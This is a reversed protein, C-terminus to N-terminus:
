KMHESIPYIVNISVTGLPKACLVPVCFFIHHVSLLWATVCALALEAYAVGGHVLFSPLSAIGLPPSM